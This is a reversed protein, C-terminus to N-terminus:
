VAMFTCSLSKGESDAQMDIGCISYEEGGLLYKVQKVVEMKTSVRKELALPGPGKDSVM